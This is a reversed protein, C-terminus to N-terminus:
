ISNAYWSVFPQWLASGTLALTHSWRLTWNAGDLWQDQQLQSSNPEHGGRPQVAM